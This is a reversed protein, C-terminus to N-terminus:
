ANSRPLDRRRLWPQCWSVANAALAVLGMAFIVPAPGWSEALLGALVGAVPMGAFNVLQASTSQRALLHEPVYSQIWTRRLVNAAVIGAVALADAVVVAWLIPGPAAFALLPLMLGAITLMITIARADGLARGLWPAALAGVIGGVSTVAFVAGITAADLGLDRSLWLVLIAQQGILGFNAVAGQLVFFRVMRDGFVVGLGTRVAAWLPERRAPAAVPHPRMVVLCVLSIALGIAEGLMARVPGVLQGILGGLGPGVTNAANETGFLVSNALGRDREPVIRVVLKAYAARFAITATGVVLAVIVLQMLQLMGLAAAVPVSVYALMSVANAGIMVARPSRGDVWAGIPLGVVLWPLWTAAAIVGMWTPSADLLQVALLPLLVSTMGAGTVSAAEGAWLLLFDRNRWLGGTRKAQGASGAPATEVPAAKAPATEAAAAAQEVSM